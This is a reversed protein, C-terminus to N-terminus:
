GVHNDRCHQVMWQKIIPHNLQPFSAKKCIIRIEDSYEKIAGVDLVGNSEVIAYLLLHLKRNPFSYNLLETAVLSKDIEMCKVIDGPFYGWISTSDNEIDLEPIDLIKFQENQLLEASVPVLIKTGDLLPIYIICLLDKM